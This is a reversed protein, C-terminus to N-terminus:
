DFILNPFQIKTPSDPLLVPLRPTLTHLHYNTPSFPLLITTNEKKEQLNEEEEVCHVCSYYFTPLQLLTHYQMYWSMLLSSCSRWNTQEHTAVDM